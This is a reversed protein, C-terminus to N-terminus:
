FGPTERFADLLLYLLTFSVLSIAVAFKDSRDHGSLGRAAREIMSRLASLDNCGANM